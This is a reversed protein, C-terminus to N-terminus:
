LLKCYCLTYTLVVLSTLFLIPYIMFPKFIINIRSGGDLLVDMIEYNKISIQVVLMVEDFDNKHHTGVRCVDPVHKKQM